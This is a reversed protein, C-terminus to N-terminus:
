RERQSPLVSIGRYPDLGKVSSKETQFPAIFILCLMRLQQTTSTKKKKKKEHLELVQTQDPELVSEVNSVITRKLM